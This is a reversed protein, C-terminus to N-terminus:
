PWRRRRYTHNTRPVIAVFWVRCIDRRIVFGARATQRGFYIRRVEYRKGQFPHYAVVPQSELFRLTDDRLMPDKLRRELDRLERRVDSWIGLEQAAHRFEQTWSVRWGCECPHRCRKKRKRKAM